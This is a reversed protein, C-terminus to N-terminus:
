FPADEGAEAALDVARERDTTSGTRAAMRAASAAAEARFDRMPRNHDADIAADYDLRDKCDASCAPFFDPGTLKRRCCGCEKGKWSAANGCNNHDTVWRTGVKKVTGDGPLCERGCKGCRGPYKNVTM